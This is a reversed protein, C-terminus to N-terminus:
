PVSVRTFSRLVTAKVEITVQRDSVPDASQAAVIAKGSELILALNERTQTKNLRGAVSGPEAPGANGPLDYQLSVKLRIKGDVLIERETFASDPQGRTM